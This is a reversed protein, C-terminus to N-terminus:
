VTLNCNYFNSCYKVIGKEINEYKRTDPQLGLTDFYFSKLLDHRSKEHNINIHDLLAINGPMFRYSLSSQLSLLILCSVFIM